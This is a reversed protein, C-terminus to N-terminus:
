LQAKAAPYRRWRLRMDPMSSGHARTRPAYYCMFSPRARSDKM